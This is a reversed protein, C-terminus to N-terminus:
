WLESNLRRARHIPLDSFVNPSFTAPFAQNVKDSRRQSRPGVFGPQGLKEDARVTELLLTPRIYVIM